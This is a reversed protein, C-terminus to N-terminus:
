VRPKRREGPKEEGKEPQDGEPAKMEKMKKAVDAFADIVKTPFVLRGGAGGTGATVGLAIPPLEDKIEVPMPMGFLQMVGAATDALGKVGLYGEFARDPPLMGAVAAFEPDKALAGDGNQAQIAKTMLETNASMTTLVGNKTATMMGGMEGSTGTFLTLFQQAQAMPSDPDIEIKAKLRDVKQGAIEAADPTLTAEVKVGDKNMSMKGFTERKAALVGAPDSTKEFTMAKAFLGTSLLAPNSGLVFAMSDVKQVQGLLGNMGAGNAAASKMAKNMVDKVLPHTLDFAYAALFPVKPMSGMVPGVGGTHTFMKASESGERFHVALDLAVGPKSMTLGFVLSQADKAASELGKVLSQIGQEADPNGGGMMAAAMEAQNKGEEIMEDIQHKFLGVNLFAVIDAGDAVRVGTGGLLAKHEAIQGTADKYAQVAPEQGMVIYGGGLDRATVGGDLGPLSTEKRGEEGGLGKSFKAWDTVPLIVVANDPSFDPSSPDGLMVFAASGEKNFGEADLLVGLQQLGEAAEPEFKKVLTEVSERIHQINRFGVTVAAGKPARDLAGPLDASATGALLAVFLAASVSRVRVGVLSQVM